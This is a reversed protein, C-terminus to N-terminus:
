CAAFPAGKGSLRCAHARHGKGPRRTRHPDGTRPTQDLRLFRRPPKAWGPTYAKDTSIFKVLRIRDVKFQSKARIIRAGAGNEERNILDEAIHSM